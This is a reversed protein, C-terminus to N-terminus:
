ALKHLIVEIKQTPNRMAGVMERGLEFAAKDARIGLTRPSPFDTKRLVIENSDSFLTNAAAEVREQLVKRGQKVTIAMVLKGAKKVLEQLQNLNFDAKVGIICDGRATCDADRTLMLTTQHTAKINPHGWATFMYGEAAEKGVIKM